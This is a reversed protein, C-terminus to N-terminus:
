ERAFVRSLKKISRRWIGNQRVKFASNRTTADQLYAPIFCLNKKWRRLGDGGQYYGAYMIYELGETLQRNEGLLFQFLDLHLQQMVGHKLYEGHGLIMSYLGVSGIRRFKIYAILKQDTQVDGQYYGVSTIFAGWWLDYHARCAPLGWKYNRDPAGGLDEVSAMYGRRMVGGSRRVMSTNIEHIDPIHLRRDFPECVIGERRSKRAQRLAAGKSVGRIRDEYDSFNHDSIPLVAAIIQRDKIGTSDAIYKGGGLNAQANEIMRGCTAGEVCVPNALDILYTEPVQRESM